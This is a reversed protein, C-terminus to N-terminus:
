EGDAMCGQPLHCPFRSGRYSLGDLTMEPFVVVQAGREAFSYGSQELVKAANGKSTESVPTLRRWGLLLGTLIISSIHKRQKDHIWGLGSPRLRRDVSPLIGERLNTRGM